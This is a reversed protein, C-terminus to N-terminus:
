MYTFGRRWHPSSLRKLYMQTFMREERLDKLVRCEFATALKRLGASGMWDKSATFVSHYIKVRWKRVLTDKVCNKVDIQRRRFTVEFDLKDKYSVWYCLIALVSRDLGRRSFENSDAPGPGPNIEFIVRAHAGLAPPVNAVSYLAKRMQCVAVRTGYATWATWQQKSALFSLKWHESETTGLASCTSSAMISDMFTWATNMRKATRFIGLNGPYLYTTLLSYRMDEYTDSTSATNTSTPDSPM